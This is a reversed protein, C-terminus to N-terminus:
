DEESDDLDDLDDLDELDSYDDEVFLEEQVDLGANEDAEWDGQVLAAEASELDKNKKSKLDQFYQRGTTKGELLNKSKDETEAIFKAKWEEFLEVTVPHGYKKAETQNKDAELKEAAEAKAREAEEREKKAEQEAMMKAYMSDEVEEKNNKELWEKAVEALTYVMPMELNNLAEEALVKQVEELQAQKLGKIAEIEIEPVVDPYKEPFSFSAYIGVHNIDEEGSFPELKLRVKIPEDSVKEFDELFISELAEVEMSQEENYDTM